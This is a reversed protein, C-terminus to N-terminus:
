PMVEALYALSRGVSERPGRGSEPEGQLMVDQELVYWGGYGAGDLAEMVRRLDVDGDGLPRYMGRLVAKEYGTEGAAVSEALGRDVDKLHVHGVRGAAAEAAEVADGGGVMVHGTDLCLLTDCCELFRQIQRPREIVTGFHPHVVVTLGYRGCIEEVLAVSEFLNQWEGGDLEVGEEYDALGTSAALVLVGAGGAALLRAQREVSEMEEARVEPRHLVAPVFGGVLGLGYGSLLRRAGAPNPPLFGDPGAEMATLGLEAAEPLVREASMQYGWGPVECVGWSIPAGAVRRGPRM